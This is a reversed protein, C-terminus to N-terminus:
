KLTTQAVGKADGIESHKCKFVWFIHPKIKTWPRIWFHRNQKPRESMALVQGTEGNEM